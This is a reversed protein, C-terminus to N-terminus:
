LLFIHRNASDFSRRANAGDGLLLHHFFDGRGDILGVVDTIRQNKELFARRFIDGQIPFKQRFVGLDLLDQLLDTGPRPECGNDAVDYAASQAM